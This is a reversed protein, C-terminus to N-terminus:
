PKRIIHGEWSQGNSSILRVFYVGDPLGDINLTTTTSNRFSKELVIEGLTNSVHLVSNSAIGPISVTVMGRSPNPYPALSTRERVTIEVSSGPEHGIFIGSDTAAALTGSATDYKLIWVSPPIPIHPFGTTHWSSGGDTSEEILGGATTDFSNQTFLGTWLHLPTGNPCSAKRQDLELAWVHPDPSAIPTWTFGRDRTMVLSANLSHWRSVFAVNSAVDSFLVKPVEPNKVTDESYVVTWHSGEDASLDIVGAESGALLIKNSDPSVGLSCLTVNSNQTGIPVWTSGHDTSKYVLGAFNEGYYLADTSPHYAIAEGDIGGIDPQATWHMGGDTSRYLAANAHFEGSSLAFVINTDSPLCFIQHISPTPVDLPLSTYWTEGGDDSRFIYESEPSSTFLVRGKSLPNFAVCYTPMSLTCHWQYDQADAHISCFLLIVSLVYTVKAM